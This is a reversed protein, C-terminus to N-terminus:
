LGMHIAVGCAFIAFGALAHSFRELKVAPVFSIGKKLIAVMAIMTGITVMSFVSAVLIMGFYSESAAPYMLIPILPECPGLVFVTFLVWPTINAKGDKNEPLHSHAHKKYARRMGWVFYVLGFATLAWAALDGRVSEVVELRTVALGFAVGILGLVVSSLVHGLGCLFTIVSTKSWSWERAKAMAVFPLYHDPGLVTHIFGLTAATIILATLEHTM